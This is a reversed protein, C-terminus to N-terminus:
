DKKTNFIIKKYVGVITNQFSQYNFKYNLIPICFYKSIEKGM